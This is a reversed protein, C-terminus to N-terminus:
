IDIYIKPYNYDNKITYGHNTLRTEKNPIYKIINRYNLQEKLFLDNLENNLFIFNRELDSFAKSINKIKIVEILDIIEDMLIEKNKNTILKKLVLSKLDKGFFSKIFKSNFFIEYGEIQIKNMSFNIFDFDQEKLLNSFVLKNKFIEISRKVFFKNLIDLYYTPDNSEYDILKSNFCLSLYNSFIFKRIDINKIKKLLFPIFLYNYLYEIEDETVDDEFGFKSLSDFDVISIDSETNNLFFILLNFPEQFKKRSFSSLKLFTFIFNKVNKKFFNIDIHSDDFLFSLSEFFIAKENDNISKYLNSTNKFDFNDISSNLLKFFRYNENKPNSLFDIRLNDVCRFLNYDEKLSHTSVWNLSKIGLESGLKYFTISITKMGQTTDFFISDFNETNITKLIKLYLNKNSINSEIIIIQIELNQKFLKNKLFIANDFSDSTCFLTLKRLFPFLSCSNEVNSNEYDQIKSLGVFTLLHYVENIKFLNNNTVDSYFNDVANKLTKLYLERM